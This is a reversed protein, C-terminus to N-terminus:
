QKASKSVLLYLRSSCDIRFKSQNNKQIKLFVPPEVQSLAGCRVGLGGFYLDYTQAVDLQFHITPWRQRFGGCIMGITEYWKVEAEPNQFFSQVAVNGSFLILAPKKRYTASRFAEYLNSASIRQWICSHAKKISPSASKLSVSKEKESFLDKFFYM